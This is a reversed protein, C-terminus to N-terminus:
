RRQGTRTVLAAFALVALWLLSLPAAPAQASIDFCGYTPQPIFGSPPTNPDTGAKLEDVDPTGDHDSDTQEAALVDLANDVSTLNGGGVLGRAEMSLAFPTTATGADTDGGAHCLDCGPTYDLGLHARIEAPYGPSAHAPLAALLIGAALGGARATSLIRMM